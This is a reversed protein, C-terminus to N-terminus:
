GNFSILWETFNVRCSQSSQFSFRCAPVQWIRLKALFEYSWASHPLLVSSYQSPHYVVCVKKIPPVIPTPSFCISPSPVGEISQQHPSYNPHPCLVVCCIYVIPPLSVAYVKNIPVGVLCGESFMWFTDSM